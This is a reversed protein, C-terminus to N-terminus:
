SSPAPTTTQKNSTVTTYHHSEEELLTGTKKYVSGDVRLVSREVMSIKKYLMGVRTARGGGCRVSVMQLVSYEPLLVISMRIHVNWM